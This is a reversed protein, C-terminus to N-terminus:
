LKTQTHFKTDRGLYLIYITPADSTRVATVTLLVIKQTIVGHVKTGIIRLFM